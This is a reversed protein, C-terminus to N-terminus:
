RTKAPQPKTPVGAPKTNVAAPKTTKVPSPRSQNRCEPEDRHDDDECIFDDLEVSSGAPAPNLWGNVAIVGFVLLALVMVAATVGGAVRISKM